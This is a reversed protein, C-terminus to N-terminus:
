LCLQQGIEIDKEVNLVVKQNRTKTPSVKKRSILIASQKLIADNKSFFRSKM